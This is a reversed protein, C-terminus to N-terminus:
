QQERYQFARRILELARGDKVMDTTVWLVVFGQLQGEAAKACDNEYGKARVHKGGNWIGGMQEVAIRYEPWCLDWRWRRGECVKEEVQPEPLGAAVVQQWLSIVM